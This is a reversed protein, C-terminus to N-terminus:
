FSGILVTIVISLIVTVLIVGKIADSTEQSYGPDLHSFDPSDEIKKRTIERRRHAFRKHM